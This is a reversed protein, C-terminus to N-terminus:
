EVWDTANGMVESAGGRYLSSFITDNTKVEYDGAHNYSPLLPEKSIANFQILIILYTILVSVFGFLM